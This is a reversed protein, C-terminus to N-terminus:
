GYELGMMGGEKGRAAMEEIARSKDRIYGRM